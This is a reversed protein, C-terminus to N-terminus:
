SRTPAIGIGLAQKVLLPVSKSKGRSMWAFLTIECLVFKGIYVGGVTAGSGLSYM